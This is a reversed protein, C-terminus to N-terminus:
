EEGDKDIYVECASSDILVSKIDKRDFSYLDYLHDKVINELEKTTLVIKM